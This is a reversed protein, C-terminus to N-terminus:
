PQYLPAVVDRVWTQYARFWTTEADPDYMTLQHRFGDMPLFPFARSSALTQYEGDPQLGLITLGTQDHRWVEPVGLGAYVALKDLLPSSVEVEIALDPPPLPELTQLDRGHLLAASTLYFCEDPELGRRLDRRKFTTSRQGKAPIDLEVILISVMRGLIYAIEEHIPGPSMLEVTGDLYSVRPGSEAFAALLQQYSAWNIHPILFRQEGHERGPTSARAARASEAPAPTATSM